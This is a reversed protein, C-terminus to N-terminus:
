ANPTGGVAHLLRATDLDELGNEIRKVYSEAERLRARADLV